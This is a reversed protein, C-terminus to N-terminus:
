PKFLSAYSEKRHAVVVGWLGTLLVGMFLGGQDLFLYFLLINLIGPAIIITALTVFRNLLFLVAATIELCKILVFLYGTDELAMLFQVASYSMEPMPLFKLFYNIGFMFFICGLLYRAIKEVM